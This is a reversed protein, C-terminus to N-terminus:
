GGTGGGGTAGNAKKFVTGAGELPSNLLSPFQGPEGIVSNSTEPTNDKLVGEGWHVLMLQLHLDSLGRNTVQNFETTLLERLLFNYANDEDGHHGHHGEDENLMVSSGDDDGDDDGHHEGPGHAHNNLIAYAQELEHGPTFQYEDVLALTEIQHILDVLQAATYVAHHHHDDHDHGIVLDDGGHHHEHLAFFLEKRWWQYVKGNTPYTDNDIGAVIADVDPEWGFDNGASNPGVTVPHSQPTTAEWTQYLEENFDSDATVSDVEVTYTGTAATFFYNGDSDTKVNQSTEGDTLTVTVDSIGLEAPGKIGDQDADTFVAGSVTFTGECPGTLSQLYHQGGRTVMGRVTGAPVDGPFTISYLFNPNEDYGVGWEVGYIGNVNTGLNGGDPPSFSAPAPACSPVEVLVNTFVGLVGTAPGPEPASTNQLQYHFTTQDSESDYDRSLFVLTYPSIAESLLPSTGGPAMLPAERQTCGALAALSIALLIAIIPPRKWNRM